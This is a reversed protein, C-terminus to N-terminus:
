KLDQQKIEFTWPIKGDVTFCTITVVREFLKEGSVAVKIYNQDTVASPVVRYPNSFEKSKSFNAFSRSTFASATVDYLPSMGDRNIRIIEAFHRDGSLFIVGPIKNDRIFNLLHNWEKDYHCFCEFDNLPNLVASGSIIFKFSARSYLLSNELWALQKEGLYHKNSSSDNMKEDSRYFRDDLLYFDCDSWIFHTYVGPNDWEGYSPNGWFDKFAELSLGKLEYSVGADNPGYDHDDWTAYNPRSALLKRLQPINRDHTYRYYFGSRSDYDAERTYMNDGCWLMFDSENKAISDFIRPDRGYPEGPRDYQPDNIYACSGFIFSFAPPATRYEWVGKTKFALPFPFQQKKNNLYIEYNYESNMDLNTLLIKLPNYDNGTIGKYSFTKASSVDEKKWCKIQVSNALSTPELWITAERHTVNCLMPGCILLSTDQASCFHTTLLFLLASFVKM